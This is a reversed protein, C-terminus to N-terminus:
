DFIDKYAQSTYENGLSKTKALDHINPIPDTDKDKPKMIDFRIPEDKPRSPEVM